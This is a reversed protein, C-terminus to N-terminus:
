RVVNRLEQWTRKANPTGKPDVFSDTVRDIFNGAEEVVESVNNEAM